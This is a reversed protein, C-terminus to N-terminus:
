VNLRMLAIDNLSLHRLRLLALSSKNCIQVSSPKSHFHRPYQSNWQKIDDETELHIFLVQLVETPDKLQNFQLFIDARKSMKPLLTVLNAYSNDIYPYQTEGMVYKLISFSATQKELLQKVADTLQQKYKVIYEENLEYGRFYDYLNIGETIEEKQDEFYEDLKKNSLLPIFPYRQEADMEKVLQEQEEQWQKLNALYSRMASYRNNLRTQLDLLRDVIMGSIHLRLHKLNLEERKRSISLNVHQAKSEYDEELNQLGKKRYPYYLLIAGLLASTILGLVLLWEYSIKNIKIDVYVVSLTLILALLFYSGLYLMYKRTTKKFNEVALPREEYIINDHSKKLHDIEGYLREVSGDMIKTRVSNNGLSQILIDYKLRLQAYEKSLAAVHIREEEILNSIIAKRINMDATDFEMITKKTIGGVQIGTVSIEEIMCAKTQMETMYSYPIYCYGKDGFKEGWSNRVKFFRDSDSYGVIVMAHYGFKDSQIEEETPRTIFAGARGFSEYVKLSIAVPYGESLASRLDDLTGAVNKAKLIKRGSADAYSETSPERQLDSDTYPYLAEECVGINMMSKVVDYMSSGNDSDLENKERRVNYYVFGESLMKTASQSKKLIYEYISVLAFATCAGMQGQDKIPLFNASLDVSSELTLGEKPQYDEELPQEKIDQLIQYSTDGFVFRHDGVLTKGSFQKNVEQENLQELEASKRRIYETSEQIQEKVSKLKDIPLYVHGDADEPEKLVFPVHYKQGKEDEKEQVRLNNEHIFADCVDRDLDDIVLQQQRFAYGSLLEDDLGLVRALTAKKEPLSLTPDYIYSLLQEEMEAFLENIKPTIKVIIEEQSIKGQLLPKVEADYFGTLRDVCPKLREQAIKSVLSIDVKEQSVNEKQLIHLYTRRLLYNVFYQRDFDLVSLGIATVPHLSDGECQTLFINAYCEAGLLAWEGFVRMLSTSNFNMSVGHENLNQLLVFHSLLSPYSQKFTVLSQITKQMVKVKDDLSRGDSGFVESLDAAIGVVDVQFSPQIEELLRSIRQVIKWSTEEYLPIFMNVLLTRNDGPNEATVTSTYLKLFYDKISTDTTLTDDWTYASVYPLVSAEGYTTIYEKLSSACEKLPEGVFLQVSHRM